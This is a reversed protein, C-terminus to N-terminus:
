SRASKYDSPTTGYAEQFCRTFYSPNSFGVSYMVETVSLDGKELLLAAKKLRLDRIYAVATMGTLEKIKRYLQKSSTGCLESLRTVDLSDDSLNDEIITTVRLLFEDDASLNKGDNIKGLMQIRLQTALHEKEHKLQEEKALADAKL